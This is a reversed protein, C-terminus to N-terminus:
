YILFHLDPACRFERTDHIHFIIQFETGGNTIQLLQLLIVFM